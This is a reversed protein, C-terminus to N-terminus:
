GNSNKYLSLTARKSLWIEQPIMKLGNLELTKLRAISESASGRMFINYDKEKPFNPAESQEGSKKNIRPEGNKKFRKEIRLRKEKILSRVDTWFKKVDNNIFEDPVVVRKFGKFRIGDSDYQYVIFLFQHEIFYEYLFSDDFTKEEMWEKFNPTFLKMSEKPKGNHDLPLSKAIMGIKVFDEIDNLRSAKSEFMKLVVLEAFNKVPVENENLEGDQRKAISQPKGISVGLADAIEAFTRGAYLKNLEECKSDIDSYDMIPKALKELPRKKDKSFLNGAIETAFSRKLRFRPPNPYRPATDIVLLVSRLESSLRPYQLEREQDTTYDHHISILFNRVLLWDHKLRQRDTDDFQFLQFDLLPFNKYGDLEVSKDSKYWYYVWLLHELKHWFNSSDFEEKVIMPISVATISVPEKCEYRYQSKPDKPVVMGTTKVEFGVDDIYIDVDQRNDAKCGLISQEVMDGAIGTVKKRNKHKEFLQAKDVELLTKGMAAELLSRVQEETFIRSPDIM